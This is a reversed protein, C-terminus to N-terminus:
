ETPNTLVLGFEWSSIGRRTTRITSLSSAQRQASHSAGLDSLELYALGLLGVKKDVGKEKCRKLWQDQEFPRGQANKKPM